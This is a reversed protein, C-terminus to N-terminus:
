AKQLDICYHDALRFLLFLVDAVDDALDIQEGSRPPRHQEVIMFSDALTGVEATQESMMIAPTWPGVLQDFLHTVERTQALLDPLTLREQM